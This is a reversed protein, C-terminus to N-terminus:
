GAYNCGAHNDITVHNRSMESHLTKYSVIGTCRAKVLVIVYPMITVQSTVQSRNPKQQGCQLLAIHDFRHFDIFQEAYRSPAVFQAFLQLFATSM